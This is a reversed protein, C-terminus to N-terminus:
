EVLENEVETEPEPNALAALMAAFQAPCYREDNNLIDAVKDLQDELWPDDIEIALMQVAMFAQEASHEHGDIEICGTL